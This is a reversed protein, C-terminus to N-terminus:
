TITLIEPGNETMAITHEFHASLSDDKSSFGYGDKAKKIHWDGTTIMPELCFVMGELIEPETGRKGYNPIQPEEHLERGIGHGCLERVVGYGRSESYEQIASGIDGFTKGKKIEKIGIELAEKATEILRSVEPKIKKGVALTIAMDSHFGKYFVGLDLSIVDGEKLKYNSPVGHVIIENVSACLCNPFGSYGKFSCKGGYKLVLGCATKDLYNTTVGPKVEKELEKMVQALIKGAERMIKIEEKTKLIIM